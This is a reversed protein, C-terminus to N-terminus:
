RQLHKKRAPEEERELGGRHTAVARCHHRHDAGGRDTRKSASLGRWFGVRCYFRTGVKGEHNNEGPFSHNLFSLDCLTVTGIASNAQTASAMVTSGNQVHRKGIRVVIADAREFSWAMHRCHVFPSRRAAAYGHLDHGNCTARRRSDSGSSGASTHTARSTCVYLELRMCLGMALTLAVAGRLRLLATSAAPLNM